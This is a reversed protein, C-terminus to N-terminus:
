IWYEGDERMSYYGDSSFIFHDLVEIGLIEGARRLRSTLEIDENSPTLNGSPHNHALIVATGMRRISESFVERPHVLTRNVLGVSVIQTHIVELAGNVTICIFHEQERDGYHRILDFVDSVTRVRRKVTGGLRRGLELAASVKAVGATGLGDIHSLADMDARGSEELSILVNQAIDQVPIGPVGSGILICLLDTDSLKGAGESILRERPRESVPMERISKFEIEKLTYKM